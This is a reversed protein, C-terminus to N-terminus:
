EADAMDKSGQCPWREGCNVCVVTRNPGSPMGVHIGKAKMDAAFGGKNFLM